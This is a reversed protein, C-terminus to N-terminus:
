LKVLLQFLEKALHHRTEKKQKLNGTIRIKRIKSLEEKIERPVTFSAESKLIHQFVNLLLRYLSDVGFLEEPFLLPMWRSSLTKDEKVRYYLLALLHSKGAGRSGTIIWSQGSLRNNKGPELEEVLEELIKEGCVFTQQLENLKKLRPDYKKDLM